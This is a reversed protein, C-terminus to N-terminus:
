LIYISVGLSLELYKDVISTHSHGNTHTPAGSSGLIGKCPQGLHTWESRLYSGGHVPPLGILWM